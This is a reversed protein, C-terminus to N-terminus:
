KVQQNGVGIRRRTKWHLKAYLRRDRLCNNMYGIGHYLLLAETTTPVSRLLSTKTAAKEKALVSHLFASGNSFLSFFDKEGFLTFVWPTVRTDSAAGTQVATSTSLVQRVQEMRAKHLLPDDRAAYLTLNDASKHKRNKEEAHSCSSRLFLTGKQM